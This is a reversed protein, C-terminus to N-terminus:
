SFDATAFDGSISVGVKTHNPDFLIAAHGPSNIWQNVAMEASEGGSSMATIQGRSPDRFVHHGLGNRHNAADNERSVQSLAPDEVLPNLGRERRAKNIAELLAPSSSKENNVNQVENTKKANKNKNGPTPQPDTADGDGDISGFDSSSLNAPQNNTNSFWQKLSEMHPALREKMNQGWSKKALTTSGFDSGPNSVSDPGDGIAFPDVEGPMGNTRHTNAPQSPPTPANFHTPTGGCTHNRIDM